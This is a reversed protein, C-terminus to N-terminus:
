YFHQIKNDWINPYWRINTNASISGYQFGTNQFFFLLLLQFQHIIPVMQYQFFMDQLINKFECRKPNFECGKKARGIIHLNFHPTQPWDPCLKLVQGCFYNFQYLFMSKFNLRCLIPPMFPTFKVWFLHSNFFKWRIDVWCQNNHLQSHVEVSNINPKVKTVLESFFLDWM